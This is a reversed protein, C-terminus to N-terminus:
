NFNFTRGIQRQRTKASPKALFLSVQARLQVLERADYTLSVVPEGQDIPLRLSGIKNRVPGV